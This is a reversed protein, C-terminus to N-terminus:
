SAPPVDAAPIPSLKKPMFGGLKYVLFGIIAGLIGGGLIDSPYHVGLYIRTYSFIAAWFFMVWLWNIQKRLVLWLFTAIGFANAAHSSVFSFRGGKYGNVIHLLDALGPEHSPRLRGIWPKILGASIRDTLFIVIAIFVLVVLSQWRLKYIMMGIVLLFLPLWNLGNTLIVMLTDLWPAHWGNLLLLLDKDLNLLFDIM